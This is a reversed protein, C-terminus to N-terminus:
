EKLSNMKKGDTDRRFELVLFRGECSAFDGVGSALARRMEDKLGRLTDQADVM